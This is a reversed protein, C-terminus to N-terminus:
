GKLRSKVLEAGSVWCGHIQPHLAVPLAVRAVPPAGIHTADLVVIESSHHEPSHERDVVMILWGDHGAKGSPVHVPENISTGPGFATGEVKGTATEVRLLANFQAGVPGGIVPPGLSVDMSQLWFHPYPRGQDADRVRPLDGPPSIPRSAFGDGPKSM